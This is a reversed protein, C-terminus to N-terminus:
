KSQFPESAVVLQVLQAIRYDAEVFKTTLEDLTAEDTIELSRGLAYSLVKSTFARAFQQRRHELLYAKLDQVGALEFGDPLTTNTTVPQGVRGKGKSRKRLIEDRWLGDAGFNELSIGWPDIGRHCDNCAPEERHLRLQERVSLSAFEPNTSDLSPVNPPPDAPPDDLLRERIWVARKVPHSDAGTSNGLLVSSQTLVGGRQSDPGLEVREFESGRPGPLGYHKALPENLMAFDSDLFNLASENKYFVESFFQLTEAQM